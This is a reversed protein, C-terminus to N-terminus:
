RGELAMQGMRLLMNELLVEDATNSLKMERDTEASLTVCSRLQEKRFGRAQGYIERAASDWLGCLKGFDYAGKGKESLVKAMYMQRYQKGIVANIMIPETDQRLLNKVKVLASDFDKAGIDKTIDFVAAELVPIVVDDIDKRCIEPQDTYACLKNLEAALTTMSGGTQLLLYRCLDDSIEKGSKKLERRIWPILEHEPQKGLEFVKSVADMATYLKKFRKDPKWEGTYVFVITCYEPIDSFIDTMINRDAESFGFFNVDSVEVMSSENMMPIAEVAEQFAELSWSEANFRHYNFDEAFGSVLKKKMVNRCSEVLYSEEGYLVYMRGFSEQKLEQKFRQYGDVSDQYAKKAM